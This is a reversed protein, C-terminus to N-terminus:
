FLRDIRGVSKVRGTAQRVATSPAATPRPFEGILIVAVTALVCAAVAWPFGPFRFLRWLMLLLIGAAFAALAPLEGARATTVLGSFARQGALRAKPLIGLQRLSKALPVDPVDQRRLYHLTVEQGKHFSDYQEPLLEVTLFS